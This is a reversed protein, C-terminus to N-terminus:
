KIALLARDLNALDPMTIASSWSAALNRCAQGQTHGHEVLLIGGPKLATHALPLLARILDLGDGGPSLAAHPEALVRPDLCAMEPASIYPPNAIVLDLSCPPLLSPVWPGSMDFQFFSLSAGLRQANQRALALAPPSIDLALGQWAPRELALTVALCGSGTGLDIFRAAATSLRALATEILLESEPRPILVHENVLFERGYFERSGLIWALPQGAEWRALLADARAQM